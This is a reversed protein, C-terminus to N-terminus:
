IKEFREIDWIFFVAENLSIPPHEQGDHKNLTHTYHIKFETKSHTKIIDLVANVDQENIGIFLSLQSQRLMGGRTDIYTVRYGAIILADLVAEGSRKPLVVMIMKM